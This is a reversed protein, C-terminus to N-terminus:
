NQMQRQARQVAPDSCESGDTDIFEMKDFHTCKSSDMNFRVMLGQDGELVFVPPDVSIDSGTKLIKCSGRGDSQYINDSFNTCKACAIEPMAEREEMSGKSESTQKVLASKMNKWKDTGRERRKRAM